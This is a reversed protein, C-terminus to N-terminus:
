ALFTFKQYVWDNYSLNSQNKNKFKKNDAEKNEILGFTDIKNQM